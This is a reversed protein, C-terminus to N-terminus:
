KDHQVYAKVISANCSTIAPNAETADSLRFIRVYDSFAYM